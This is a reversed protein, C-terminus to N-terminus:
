DFLNKLFDQYIKVLPELDAIKVWENIKHISENSVGFEICETGYQAFFRGDSTGGASNFIVEKNTNKLIAQKLSNLLLENNTYFPNGSLTWLFNFKIGSKETIVQALNEAMLKIKEESQLNNFRWNILATATEPVVNEAGVGGNFNSVQVSTPPFVENGKDWQIQKLEACFEALAFIPNKIKEPYAVHGQTGVAEIKLNLSGRRGARAFDGLEKSCTPEGILAYDFKIGEQHLLKLVAKAGNKGSGEEDATLFLSVTGKHNPNQKVFECLALTLGAVGTKMDAAGRAFIKGERETPEFPPSQWLSLDGAPVVDTHGVLVLHPFGEGHTALLNATDGLDIRRYSIGCGKLKEQILEMCGADDPTISKKSLLEKLFDKM